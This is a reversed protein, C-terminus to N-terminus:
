VQLISFIIILMLHLKNEFKTEDKFTKIGNVDQDKSVAPDGAQQFKQHWWHVLMLYM